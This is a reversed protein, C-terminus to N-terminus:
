RMATWWLLCALLLLVCATMIALRRHERSQVQQFTVPKKHTDSSSTPEDFEKFWMGCLKCKYVNFHVPHVKGIIHPGIM